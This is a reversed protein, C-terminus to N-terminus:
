LGRLTTNNSITINAKMKAKDLKQELEDRYKSANEKNIGYLM